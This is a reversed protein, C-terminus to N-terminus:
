GIDYFSPETSTYFYILLTNNTLTYVEAKLKVFKNALCAMCVIPYQEKFVNNYPLLKTCVLKLREAPKSSEHALLSVKPSAVCIYPIDNLYEQFIFTGKPLNPILTEEILLNNIKETNINKEM